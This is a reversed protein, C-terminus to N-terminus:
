MQNYNYFFNCNFYTQYPGTGIRYSLNLLAGGGGEFFLIRIPNYGANVTVTASTFTTPGHYDWAVPSAPTFSLNTGNFYIAVGDDSTPQFTITTAVPSYFYGGIEAAIYDSKNAKPSLYADNIALANLIPGSWLKAGWGSGGPGNISPITSGDTFTLNYLNVYLGDYYGSNRSQGQSGLLNKMRDADSKFKFSNGTAASNNQANYIKVFNNVTNAGNQYDVTDFIFRDQSM